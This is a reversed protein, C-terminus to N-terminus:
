LYVKSNNGDNLAPKVIRFIHDKVEGIKASQLVAIIQNYPVTGGLKKVELIRIILLAIFCSLFHTQISVPNRVFVPRAELNSKTLKFSEEIKWLGRYMEIIDQDSVERNLEFLCDYSRFRARGKWPKEDPNRGM